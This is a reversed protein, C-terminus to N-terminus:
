HFLKMLTALRDNVFPGGGFGLKVFKLRGLDLEVLLVLFVCLFEGLPNLVHVLVLGRFNEAFHGIFALHFRGDLNERKKLFSIRGPDEGRQVIGLQNLVKDGLKAIQFGGILFSWAVPSTLRRRARSQVDVRRPLVM